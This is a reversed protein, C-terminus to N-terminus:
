PLYIGGASIKPGPVTVFPKGGFASGMDEIRDILRQEKEAEEKARREQAAKVKHQKTLNRNAVATEILADCLTATLPAFETRILAGTRENMYYKQIVKFLEYEGNEPYPGNLRVIKGDVSVTFKEEWEAPTLECFLLMEFIYRDRTGPYKICPEDAVITLRDCGRMIRFLPRGNEARGGRKTILKTLHHPVPDIM